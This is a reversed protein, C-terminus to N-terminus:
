SPVPVWLPPPSRCSLTTATRAPLRPHPGGWRGRSGLRERNAPGQSDERCGAERRPAPASGRARRVWRDGRRRPGAGRWRTREACVRGSGSRSAPAEVACVITIGGRRKAGARPDGRRLSPWSWSHTGEACARALDAKPPPTPDRCLNPGPGRGGSPSARNREPPSRAAGPPAGAPGAPDTLQRRSPKAGHTRTPSGLM